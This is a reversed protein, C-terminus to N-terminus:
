ALATSCAAMKLTLTTKLGRGIRALKSTPSPLLEDIRSMPHRNVIQHPRSRIPRPKMAEVIPKASGPPRGRRPKRRARSGIFDGIWGKLRWLSEHRKEGIAATVARMLELSQRTEVLNGLAGRAAAGM